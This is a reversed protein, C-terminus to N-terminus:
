DLLLEVIVDRAHRDEHRIGKRAVLRDLTDSQRPTLHLTLRSKM